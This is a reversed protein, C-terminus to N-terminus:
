KHFSGMAPFTKTDVIRDGAITYIKGTSYYTWQTVGNGIDKVNEPDGSKLVLLALESLPNVRVQNGSFVLEEKRQVYVWTLAPLKMNKSRWEQEVVGRVAITGDPNWLMRFCDPRGNQELAQKEVPTLLKVVPWKASPQAFNITQDFNFEYPQQKPGMFPILGFSIAVVGIPKRFKYRFKEFM